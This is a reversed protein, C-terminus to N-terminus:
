SPRQAFTRKFRGKSFEKGFKIAKIGQAGTIQRLGKRLQIGNNLRGKGLGKKRKEKPDFHM